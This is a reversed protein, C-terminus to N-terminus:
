AASPHDFRIHLSVLLGYIVAWPVIICETSAVLSMHRRVLLLGDKAVMAISLYRKVDRVNTLKKSMRTGKRLHARNRRLDPCDAQLGLWTSWNLFPLKACCCMVEDVSVQRVVSDLSARVFSCVQCVPNDCEPTNHSAFDAPLIAAGAVHRVSVWFGNAKSLFQTKCPSASFEGRCLKDFAQVCPKSDMLVCPPMAYGKIVQALIKYAGIFSCLDMVDQTPPVIGFSFHLPPKSRNTRPALGVGLHIDAGPFCHLMTFGCSGAEVGEALGRPLRGWLGYCLDDAVKAVQGQQLLDGFATCTLEKLATESGPM